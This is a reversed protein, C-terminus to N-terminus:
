MAAPFRAAGLLLMFDQQMGAACLARFGRLHFLGSCYGCAM